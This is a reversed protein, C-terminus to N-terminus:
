FQSLYPAVTVSWTVATKEGASDAVQLTFDFTGARTPQGSVTGGLSLSLGAPLHGGRVTWTYPATGGSVRPTVPAYAVRVQGAHFNASTVVHSPCCYM